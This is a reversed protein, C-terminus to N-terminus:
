GTSHLMQDMPSFPAFKEITPRKCPTGFITISLGIFVLTSSSITIEFFAIPFNRLQTLGCYQAQSSTELYSIAEVNHERM